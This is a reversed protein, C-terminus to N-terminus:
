FLRGDIMLPTARYYNTGAIKPYKQKLEAAVAPSRWAIKLNKVNAATIQDIPAYKTSGPDASYSPWEVPALTQQATIAVRTAAVAAVMALAGACAAARYHRRM